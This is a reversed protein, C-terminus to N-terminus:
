RSLKIKTTVGEGIKIISVSGKPDTGNVGNRPEGEDASLVTTNDAFTVMDPQVGVTYAKNLELSGDVNCTFIAVIGADAYDEAQIAVALKSGDPSVAVSTMDGYTFNEVGFNEKSLDYETGSLPVVKEGDLRENISVAILKGKIGSVAYAYGNVPNYQVIELSGGDANM